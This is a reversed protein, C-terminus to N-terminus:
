CAAPAATTRSWRPSTSRYRLLAPFVIGAGSFLITLKTRLRSDPTMVLFPPLDIPSEIDSIINALTMGQIWIQRSGPVQGGWAM